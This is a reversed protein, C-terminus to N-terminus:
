KRTLLTGDHNSREPSLTTMAPPATTMWSYTRRRNGSQFFVSVVIDGLERVANDAEHVGEEDTEHNGRHPTLDISRIRLYPGLARRSHLKRPVESNEILGVAVPDSLAQQLIFVRGYGLPELGRAQGQM